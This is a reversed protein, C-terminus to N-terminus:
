ERQLVRTQQLEMGWPALIFSQQTLLYKKHQFVCTKPRINRTLRLWLPVTVNTVERLHHKAMRRM